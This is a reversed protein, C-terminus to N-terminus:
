RPAIKAARSFSIQENPYVEIGHVTARRAFIQDEHYLAVAPCDEYVTRQIKGLIEFRRKSDITAQQAEILRDVTSNSYRFYNMEGKAKFFLNLTFDLDGTPNGKGMLFMPCETAARLLSQLTMWDPSKLVSRIGVDKLQSQIAEAVQKDMFYRGTPAYLTTDFGERYGAEALLKKARAPEYPYPKLDKLAGPISPSELGGGLSGVGKLIANLLKEKNLAFAVAKRVRLDDFPKIRTNFGLYITRFGRERIIRIVKSQSVQDVLSAPVSAIVDVEGRKLLNVREEDSPVVRFVLDDLRAKRGWYNENRLLLTKEGVIRSEFKFPGTGAPSGGYSRGWKKGASPSIIALNYGTLQNLFSAFPKGLLFSVTHDNLVKVQSVMDISGRRPSNLEPDKLRGFSYKVAEANFPTGDHFRVDSRLRFTWTLLDSTVEWSEALGPVLNMDTDYKVLTEHIQMIVRATPVDTAFQPDLTQADTGAAYVLTGNSRPIEEEASSLCVLFFIAAVLTASFLLRKKM